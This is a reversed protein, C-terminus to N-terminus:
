IWSRMLDRRVALGGIGKIKPVAPAGDPRTSSMEAISAASSSEASPIM